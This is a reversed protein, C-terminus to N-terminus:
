CTDKQSNVHPLTKHLLHSASQTNKVLVQLLLQILLFPSPLLQLQFLHRGLSLDVLHFLLNQKELVLIGFKDFYSFIEM